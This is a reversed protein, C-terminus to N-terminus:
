MEENAFGTGISAIPGNNMARHLGQVKGNGEKGVRLRERGRKGVKLRVGEGMKSRGWKNVRLRGGKGV